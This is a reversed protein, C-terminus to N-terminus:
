PMNVEMFNVECEDRKFVDPHYQLAFNCYTAKVKGKSANSNVELIRGFDM